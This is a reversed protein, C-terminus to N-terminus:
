SKYDYIEKVSLIKDENWNLHSCIYYWDNGIKYAFEKFKINNIINPMGIEGRKFAGYGKNYVVIGNEFQADIDQYNCYKIITAKLGCNMMHTKGIHNTAAKATHANINPHKIEGRKFASYCKNYMITKDEFQVIIDKVNNYKIITAKLGCKMMRTEGIRDTTKATTVNINPHKIVGKKFNDYQKNSVIVNDEFQIDINNCNHYNIITAKIGCKMVRTEGTRDTTIKRETKITPHKIVGRKFNSYTKHTAICNDEFQITINDTSDYKIITAKLGCNMVRTEGIHKKESKSHITNMNPHKIEGKTFEAYQRNHIVIGDEYQIDINNCNHYKIVTAKLGCNMMRTEGTRDKIKGM